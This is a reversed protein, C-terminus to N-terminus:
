FDGLGVTACKIQLSRRYHRLGIDVRGEHSFRMDQTGTGVTMWNVGGKGVKESEKDGPEM